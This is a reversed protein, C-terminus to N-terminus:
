DFPPEVASLHSDGVDLVLPRPHHDVVGQYPVDFNHQDQVGCPGAVGGVPAPIDEQRGEPQGNAPAPQVQRPICMLSHANGSPPIDRHRSSVWADQLAHNTRLQFFPNAQAADAVQYQNAVDFNHQDQVGRPGAVGGVPPPMGERRGEPQGNAVRLAPPVQPYVNIKRFPPIDQHRYSVWTIQLANNHPQRPISHSSPDEPFDDAQHSDAPAMQYQSSLYTVLVCLLIHQTILIKFNLPLPILYGLPDFALFGESL